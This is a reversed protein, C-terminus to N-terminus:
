EADVFLAATLAYTASATPTFFTEADLYLSPALNVAGDAVIPAFFTESDAYLSPTLSVAGAAVTPAFFTDTDVYLAPTLSVAGSSLTWEGLAQSGLPSQGLM